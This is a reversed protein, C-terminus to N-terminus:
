PQAQTPPFRALLEQQWNEMAQLAARWADGGRELWEPDNAQVGALWQRAAERAQTRQALGLERHRQLSAPAPPTASPEAEILRTLESVLAQRWEDNRQAPDMMSLLHVNWLGQGYVAQVAEDRDLYEAEADTVNYGHARLYQSFSSYTPQEPTQAAAWEGPFVLASAVILVAVFTLRWNM